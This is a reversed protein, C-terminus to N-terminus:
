LKHEQRPEPAAPDVTIMDLQLARAPDLPRCTVLTADDGLAGADSDALHPDVVKRGTVRYVRSTGNATTVTVRDGIAVESLTTSDEGAVPQKKGAAAVSEDNVVSASLGLRPVKAILAPETEGWPWAAQEPLSARARDWASERLVQALESPTPPAGAFLLGAAVAAGAITGATVALRRRSRLFLLLLQASGRRSMLDEEWGAAPLYRRPPSRSVLDIHGCEPLHSPARVAGNAECRRVSGDPRGARREREVADLFSDPYPCFFVFNGSAQRPVSGPTARDDVNVENDAGLFILWAL